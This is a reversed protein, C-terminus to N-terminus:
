PCNSSAAGTPRLPCQQQVADFMVSGGTAGPRLLCQKHENFVVCVLFEAIVFM